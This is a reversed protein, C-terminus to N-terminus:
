RRVATEIRKRTAHAEEILWDYFKAAQPRQFTSESYVLEYSYGSWAGETPAFPITLAGSDLMELSLSLGCILLGANSHAAASLAQSVCAYQIARGTVAKRYGFQEVWEPWGYLYPPNTQDILHLLSFGELRKERPLSCIWDRIQPSSVPLFYESYLSKSKDNSGSAVFKVEFDPKRNQVETMGEIVVSISPYLVQFTALKPLLWLEAWDPDARIYIENLREFQLKQAAEELKAFGQALDEAAALAAPTPTSGRPGRELLPIGLYVELTRVRQGLAAPTVGLEDAALTLTGLRITANLAQLAKLHSLNQM